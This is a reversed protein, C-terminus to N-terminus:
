DQKSPVIRKTLTLEALTRPPPRCRLTEWNILGWGLFFLAFLLLLLFFSQLNAKPSLWFAGNYRPSLIEFSNECSQRKVIFLGSSFLTGKTYIRLAKLSLMMILLLTSWVEGWEWEQCKQLDCKEEKWLSCYVPRGPTGWQHKPINKKTNLFICFSIKECIWTQKTKNFLDLSWRGKRTKEVVRLSHFISKHLRYFDCWGAYKFWM